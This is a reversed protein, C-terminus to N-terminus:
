SYDPKIILAILDFDVYGYFLKHNTKWIQVDNIYFDSIYIKNICDYTLAKIFAM